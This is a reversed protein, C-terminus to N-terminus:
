WWDKYSIAYGLRRWYMQKSAIKVRTLKDMAELEYNNSLDVRPFAGFKAIQSALKNQIYDCILDNAQILTTSDSSANCVLSPLYRFQMHYANDPLSNIRISSSTYEWWQMGTEENRKTKYLYEVFPTTSGVVNTTNFTTPSIGVYILDKWSVGTPLSYTAQSSATPTTDSVVYDTNFEKVDKFIDEIFIMKTTSDVFSTMM